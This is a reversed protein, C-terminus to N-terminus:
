IILSILVKEANQTKKILMKLKKEEETNNVKPTSDDNEGEESKISPEEKVNPLHLWGQSKTKKNTVIKKLKKKHDEEDEELPVDHYVEEDDDDLLDAKDGIWMSKKEIPIDAIPKKSKKKKSKKNKDDPGNVETNESIKENEIINEPANENVSSQFYVFPYM